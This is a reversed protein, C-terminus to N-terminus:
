AFFATLDSGATPATFDTEDEYRKLRALVTVPYANGSGEMNNFENKEGDAKFSPIKELLVKELGVVATQNNKAAVRGMVGFYDLGSGGAPFDITSVLNGSTGSESVTAGAIVAMAASDYGGGKLTVKSKKPVSLGEVTQGYADLEANDHEPEFVLAQGNQVFVPTDYSGDANLPFVWLGVLTYLLEAYDM